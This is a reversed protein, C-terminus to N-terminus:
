VLGQTTTLGIPERSCYPEGYRCGIKQGWFAADTEFQQLLTPPETSRNTVFQTEYAAIAALKKDWVQSIDVIFSPQPILKLHISFYYYIREPHWPEGPMETKTLKSWFRAAEVLASAALHDPHADEWYPALLWAPRSQRIVGTLARRSALDSEVSRNTLGLNGRWKIGLIETARRSEEARQEISGHPTPEGDTLDLVGVRRGEAVLQCILGGAGLEADDPHTAIVLVDLAPVVQPSNEPSDAM